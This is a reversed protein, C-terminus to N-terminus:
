DGDERETGTYRKKHTAVRQTYVCVCFCVCSHMCAYLCCWTHNFAFLPTHNTYWNPPCGVFLCLMIIFTAPSQTYACICETLAVWSAAVVGDWTGGWCDNRVRIRARECGVGDM